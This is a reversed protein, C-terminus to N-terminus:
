REIALAKADDRFVKSSYGFVLISHFLSISLLDTLINFIWSSEGGGSDVFLKGTIAASRYVCSYTSDQTKMLNKAPNIDTPIRFRM